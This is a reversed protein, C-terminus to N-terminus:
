GLEFGIRDLAVGTPEHQAVRARRNARRTMAAFKVVRQPSKRLVTLALGASDDDLHEIAQKLTESLILVGDNAGCAVATRWASAKKVGILFERGTIPTGM